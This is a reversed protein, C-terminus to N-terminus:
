WRPTSAFQITESHRARESTALNRTEWLKTGIDHNTALLARLRMLEYAVPAPFGKRRGRRDLLLSIFVRGTLSRDNWCLAIRNAVRPYQACLKFPREKKPLHEVWALTLDSLIRDRRRLPTRLMAWDAETRPRKLAANRSPRTRQASASKFRFLKLIKLM